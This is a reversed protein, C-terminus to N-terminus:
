HVKLGQGDLQYLYVWDVILKNANEWEWEDQTPPGMESFATAMSLKLYMYQSYATQLEERELIKESTVYGDVTFRITKNDVWEFGYTHFDMWLGRTDTSTFSGLDTVTDARGSHLGLQERGYSTPWAWLNQVISDGTGFSEDINTESSWMDKEGPESVTWLATWFGAGNPHIDSIELYGYLFEMRDNTQLMGGYYAYDNKAAAIVLCGDQLYNNKLVKAGRYCPKGDNATSDKKGWTISWNKTSIYDQDFEDYWVPKYYTSSDYKKSANNYNGDLVSMSPDIRNTNEVMKCFESVAMATAYPSGGNLFIKTGEIRIEYEDPKEISKVGDRNCDGIIIEYDTTATKELIGGRQTEDPNRKAANDHIIDVEYGTKRYLLECLRETETQTLYSVNYIPRVVTFHSLDSTGCVTIQPKNKGSYMYYIGDNHEDNLFTEIFVKTAAKIANKGSSYIVIDDDISCIIYDCDKKCGEKELLEKVKRTSDRDCDGILIERQNEGSESDDLHQPTVNYLEKYSRFIEGSASAIGTTDNEPRVIRYVANNDGDVFSVKETSLVKKAESSMVTIVSYGSEGNLIVFIVCTLSIVALAVRIIASLVSKKKM